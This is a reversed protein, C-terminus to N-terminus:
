MPLEVVRPDLEGEALVEPAFARHNGRARLEGGRVLGELAQVSPRPRDSRGALKACGALRPRAGAFVRVGRQRRLLPLDCLEGGGAQAVLLDALPEEEGVPGDSVVQVTDKRLEADGRAGREAIREVGKGGVASGTSFLAKARDSATAVRQQSDRTSCSILTM